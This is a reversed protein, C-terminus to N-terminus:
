RLAPLSALMKVITINLESPCTVNVTKLRALSRIKAYLSQAPTDEDDLVRNMTLTVELSQGYSAICLLADDHEEYTTDHGM